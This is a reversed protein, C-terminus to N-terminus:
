FKFSNLITMKEDFIELNNKLINLYMKADMTVNIFVLEDVGAASIYSWVM